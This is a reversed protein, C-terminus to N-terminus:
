NDISSPLTLSPKGLLVFRTAVKAVDATQVLHCEDIRM